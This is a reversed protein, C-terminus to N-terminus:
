PAASPTCGSLRVTAVPTRRDSVVVICDASFFNDDEIRYDGSLESRVGAASSDSEAIVFINPAANTGEIRLRGDVLSGHTVTIAFANTPLLVLLGVFGALASLSAKRLM